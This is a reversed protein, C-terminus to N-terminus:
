NFASQTGRGAAKFSMNKRTNSNNTNASIRQLSFRGKHFCSRNVAPIPMLWLSFYVLKYLGRTAILNAHLNGRITM